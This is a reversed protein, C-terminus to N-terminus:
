STNKLIFNKNLKNLLNKFQSPKLQQNKDSLANKPSDHVEIMLGDYKKTYANKAIEYIYKHDGSIHSPDCIIPMNPYLKKFSNVLRWRPHNRYTTKTDSYFGRHITKLRTIGKKNLREIAGSWLKIDPVIPNKVWVEIDLGKIAQSIEEVSFPNATTRAGLWIIKINHKIALEVHKSHAIEIAVPINYKKQVANAWSLAKKGVGHYDKPSTRGKWIGARIIDTYNHIQDCINYFQEKNEVACPGAIILNNKKKKDM